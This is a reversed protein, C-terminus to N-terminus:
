ILGDNRSEGSHRPDEQPHSPGDRAQRLPHLTFPDLRSSELAVKVERLESLFFRGEEQSNGRARFAVSGWLSSCELLAPLGSETDLRRHFAGVPPLLHGPCQFGRGDHMSQGTNRSLM